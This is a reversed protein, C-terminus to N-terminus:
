GFTDVANAGIYNEMEFFRVDEGSNNWIIFITQQLNKGKKSTTKMKIKNNRNKNNTDKEM